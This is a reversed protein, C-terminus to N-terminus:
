GPTSGSSTILGSNAPSSCDDGASLQLAGKLSMGLLLSKLLQLDPPPQARNHWYCTVAVPLRLQPPLVNLLEEKVGLAELLVKLRTSRGM